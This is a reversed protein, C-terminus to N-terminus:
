HFGECLSAAHSSGEKMRRDFEGIYSGGCVLNGDSSFPGGYFSIGTDPSKRLMCTYELSGLSPTGGSAGEM